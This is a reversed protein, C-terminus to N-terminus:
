SAKVGAGNCTKCYTKVKQSKPDVGTGNCDVCKFADTYKYRRINLRGRGKCALCTSIVVVSNPDRGTGSCYACEVWM